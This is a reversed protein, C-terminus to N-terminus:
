CGDRTVLGLDVAECTTDHRDTSTFIKIHLSESQEMPLHLCEKLRSTVYTRQSECDM